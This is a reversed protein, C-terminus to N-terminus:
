EDGWADDVADAVVDGSLRVYAQTNGIDAHGLVDKLRTIDMGRSVSQTGYTHRFIHPTLPEDLDVDEAVKKVRSWVAGRGVQVEGHDDLFSELLQWAEDHAVPIVRAGSSSKPKWYDDPGLEDSQEAKQMCDTCSCPEHAPVRIRPPDSRPDLWDRTMHTFESVRMGTRALTRVTYEVRRTHGAAAELVADLEPEELAVVEGKYM